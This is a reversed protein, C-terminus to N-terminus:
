ERDGGLDDLWRLPARQRIVTSLSGKEAYLHILLLLGVTALRVPLGHNLVIAMGLAAGLANAGVDGLMARRSLDFPLYVAAAGLLPILLLTGSGGSTLASAAGFILFGKTARGPRLDLLNLANASLAVLAANLPLEWGPINFGAAATLAVLGGAMAKLAGSSLRRQGWLLGLHGRFGKPGTGGSVDDMLGWLAMGTLGWLYGLVPVALGGMWVLPGLTVLAVLPFLTGAVPVPDQRYNLKVLPGRGTSCLAPLLWRTLLGAVLFLM